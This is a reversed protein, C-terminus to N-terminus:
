GNVFDLIANTALEADPNSGPGLGFADNPNAEFTWTWFNVSEIQEGRGDLANQLGIILAAQEESDVVESTAGTAVEGPNTSWPNVSTLDFPVAGFEQIVVPLGAGNHAAYAVPLIHDDIVRNWGDTVEDVFGPNVGSNAATNQDVVALPGSFYADVGVYDIVPNNWVVSALNTDGLNDWNAAYGIEGSFRKDAISIVDTFFRNNAPDSTMAVLETGVNIRDAGAKQGIRAMQRIWKKYGRQFRTADSGEPAFAGRWADDDGDVEFIPNLTVHMGLERSKQLSARLVDNGTGQSAVIRGTSAHVERYLNLTVRNIGNDSLSQIGSEWNSQAQQGRQRSFSVLNFGVNSDTDPDYTSQTNAGIGSLM